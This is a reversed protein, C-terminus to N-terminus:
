ARAPNSDPVACGGPGCIGEADEALPTPAPAPHTEDWVQRLVGLLTDTDQAGAVAYRGDIVFFPVGRAGLRQAQRADDAVQQRFTRDELVQRTEATDLGLEGALDVLADVDFVPRAEGFYARFLLHWAEGNKGQATAYALLEHTLETNAVTNDLVIYPALGESDAMTEIRRTSAEIQADGMGYKRRLMERATLGPGSPMSPDLLFSRHTVEVDSGHEFRELARDLRHTGLGCWPCIVDSWIEVKVEAEL